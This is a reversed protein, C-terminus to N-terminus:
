GRKRIIRVPLQATVGTTAGMVYITTDIYDYQNGGITQNTLGYLTYYAPSTTATSQLDPAITLSFGTVAARPGNVESYNLDDDTTQKFIL